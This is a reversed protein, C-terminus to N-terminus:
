FTFVISTHIFRGYPDYFGYFGAGYDNDSFGAGLPPEKDLINNIGLTLQIGDTLNYSGALDFYNYAGYHYSGVAKFLPIDEPLALASQDSSIDVTVGGQMRWGLTATAKGVEWSVQFRHRWKPNPIGCTNGFLGVCDYAYLGTDITKAMLYTGMLNFNLFSNGLPMLYSSNVDVGESGLEGINADTSITYGDPTLWLTGRADRHIRACLAPDGTVACQKIIDDAFYNSITNQIKIKYYDLAVTFGPVSKPTVVVGFYDTDGTEVKLDPNGGLLSNYQEAPNELILGYQDPSVGTRACQEVTYAPDPGACPDSNGQLLVTQPRFLERVNPSRTARSKGLRFRLGAFPAYAAQAKWTSATGTTSYDSYRYGLEMSLDQAGPVDQVIPLLIETFAEKVNYSGDVGLTAGGQGAGIGQQYALDPHIFLEEKRYEAGFAFKVGESASPFKVGYDELDGNIKASVLETKVGSNLLLPLSVYDLAAQTVGGIQFINWPVCAPDNGACVPQGTAPDTTVLLANQLNNSNLDNQYEQPSHVQAHLGYIDYSWNDNIDGKLGAILRYSTHELHSNRPGGEVNRRLIQVEALDTPGWGADVCFKQYQDASLLPNDCNVYGTNGFDGSPAIQADSVDDMMMVDVYGEFHENWKYNIMGGATWREDPRQLFNVAGYNYLHASTFDTLTNGPGFEDLTYDGSLDGGPTFVLFRGYPNTSSGGCTPGSMTLGGLVSCNTYDRRNKLLASTKRYEIYGTAHGKGEGFKAGFAVYADMTGGDWANGSPPNFGRDENIGQAEKNNNNHQYATYQIGSKMGEFDRDLVFNVVGAVADAGYVSSAGGTLIDVRKVLFAPIFNLDPAVEYADGPVTRKGDILLLTRQSGLYRLDVTATGSAGNSITSNQSAFVQPLSTLLDELRTVGSNSIQEPDLTAVPSLAELTPRPILTGTVEVVQEFKPQAPPQDQAPQQEPQAPQQEQAMAPAGYGVMGVGIALVGVLLIGRWVRNRSCSM